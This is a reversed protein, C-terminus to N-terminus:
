FLAAATGDALLWARGPISLRGGRVELRGARVLREATRRRRETWAPVGLTGAAEELDFGGRLRLGLM